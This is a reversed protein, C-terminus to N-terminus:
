SSVVRPSAPAAVHFNPELGARAEPVVDTRVAVRRRAQADPAARGDVRGVELREEGPDLVGELGAVSSATREGDELGAREGDQVYRQPRGNLLDWGGRGEDLHLATRRLTGTGPAGRGAGRRPSKACAHQGRRGRQPLTRFEGLSNERARGGSGGFGECALSKEARRVKSRELPARACGWFAARLSVSGWRDVRLGLLAAGPRRVCM